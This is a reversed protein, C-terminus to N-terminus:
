GVSARPAPEAAAGGRALGLQRRFVVLLLGITAVLLLETLEEWFDSWYLSERYANVLLHRFVPYVTFGLGAYFLPEIRRLSGPGGRVVFPLTALLLLAGLAPYLRLEVLHNLIPEGYDAVAGLVTTRFTTPRLPATLPMLAIAALGIVVPILLDHVGCRVADRKWCRGCFRQLACAHAADDYHLVREEALRWLAWPVLGSMAVMGIGHLLEIPFLLGPRHLYFNAACLVEGVFFWLLGHRLLRLPTERARRLLRLLLFALVLYVPKMVGGSSFAVLQQFRTFPRVPISTDVGLAPSPGAEVPLGARRWGEMGGALVLVDDRHLRATPASLAGLIGHACVLLIPRGPRAPARSLYGDLGLVPVNVAGPLHDAEYEAPDRLDIAQVEGLAGAAAPEVTRAGVATTVLAGCGCLALAGSLLVLRATM